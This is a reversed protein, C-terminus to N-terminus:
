VGFPLNETGAVFIQLQYTGDKESNFMFGLRTGVDFQEMDRVIQRVHEEYNEIIVKIQKANFRDQSYRLAWKRTIQGPTLETEAVIGITTAKLTNCGVFARCCGCEDLVQGHGCKSGPVLPEGPTTFSFDLKGTGQQEKTPAVLYKM